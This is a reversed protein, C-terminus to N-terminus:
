CQHVAFFPFAVVVVIAMVAGRCNGFLAGEHVVEVTCGLSGAPQEGVVIGISFGEVDPPTLAVGYDVKGRSARRKEEVFLAGWIEALLVGTAM